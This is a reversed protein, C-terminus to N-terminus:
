IKSAIDTSISRNRLRRYMGGRRPDLLSMVASGAALAGKELVNLPVHGEYNPRPRNLVSFSRTSHIFSLRLVPPLNLFRIVAMIKVM